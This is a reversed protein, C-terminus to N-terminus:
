PRKPKLLERAGEALKAAAVPHAGAQEGVLQGVRKGVGGGARQLLNTLRERTEPPALLAAATGGIAGATLGAAFWLLPSALSNRNRSLGLRLLAATTATTVTRSILPSINRALPALVPTQMCGRSALLM